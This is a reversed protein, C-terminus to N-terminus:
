GGDQAGINVAAGETRVRPSKQRRTYRQYDKASFNEKFWNIMHQFPNHFKEHFQYGRPKVKIYEKIM